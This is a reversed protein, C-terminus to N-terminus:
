YTLLPTQGLYREDDVQKVLFDAVDKRSIFGNRWKRPDCLIKYRGRRIRELATEWATAAAAPACDAVM